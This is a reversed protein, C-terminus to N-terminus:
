KWQLSSVKLQKKKEKSITQKAHELGGATKCASPREYSSPPPLKALASFRRTGKSVSGSRPARHSRREGSGEGKQRSLPPQFTVRAPRATPRAVGAMLKSPSLQARCSPPTCGAPLLAVPLQTMTPPQVCFELAKYWRGKSQRLRKTSRPQAPLTHHIRRHQQDM